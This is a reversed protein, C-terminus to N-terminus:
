GALAALVRRVSFPDDVVVADEWPVLEEAHLRWPAILVVPPGKPCSRRLGRIAALAQDLAEETGVRIVVAAPAPLRAQGV